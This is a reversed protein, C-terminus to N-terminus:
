NRNKSLHSIICKRLTDIEKTDFVWKERDSFNLCLKQLEEFLTGFSKLAEDLSELDACNIRNESMKQFVSSYCSLIVQIENCEKGAVFLSRRMRLLKIVPPCSLEQFMRSVGGETLLMNREYKVFRIISLRFALVGLTRFLATKVVSNLEMSDNPRVFTSFTECINKMKESLLVESTSCRDCIGFDLISAKISDMKEQNFAPSMEALIQYMRFLLHPYMSQAKSVVIDSSCYIPSYSNLPISGSSLAIKSENVYKSTLLPGIDEKGEVDKGIVEICYRYIRNWAAQAIEENEGDFIVSFEIDSNPRAEFRGYSGFVGVTISESCAGIRGLTSSFTAIKNVINGSLDISNTLGKRADQDDWTIQGIETEMNQRIALYDPTRFTPIQYQQYGQVANILDNLCEDNLNKRKKDTFLKDIFKIAPMSYAESVRHMQPEQSFLIYPTTRDLKNLREVILKFGGLDDFELVEDVIIVFYNARAKYNIIELDENSQLLAVNFDSELLAKQISKAHDLDDEILLVDRSITM